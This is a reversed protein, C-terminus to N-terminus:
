PATPVRLGELYGHVLSVASAGEGSAAAVRKMSGSRIDGAAFIGPVCTALNEPPLGDAWCETPVDRGTLVFGHEDRLVDDGLWDCHPAAGILLFLGGASVREEQRTRVDCLQLWGLQGGEDAGGDIIETCPRVQIRPNWQLEDILYKSMTAALDERRILITVSRAFRALHVAAQGASNGGGVVYVDRDEMERAATMAAGYNVGAGVLDELPAVGLRRYAVGSAILISRAHVKGGETILTHPAGDVGPALEVVPWGTFFRAGFRIAQTRARQGLRMGSIGRPFGLYNRIMSSTGAQGGIVEQELVVTSLGESAGYVAAALGAPGAGVVALDVVTTCDIDSPRGYMLASLERVSTPAIIPRDAFPKSSLHVLPYTPPADHQRGYLEQAEQGQPSDPAYTRHPFGVRDLFDRVGLSLPTAAPTIIRVTDIESSAVTAGWDSLLEVVAYHFEEDRRGQPLVLYTDFKGKALYPRLTNTDDAFRSIPIAVIRRATPVLTRWDHLALLVNEDPLESDTVVMAVPQGSARARQLIATADAATTAARVDYEREYRRFQQTLVDIEEGSVLLIVPDAAPASM